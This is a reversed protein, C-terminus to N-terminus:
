GRGNGGKGKRRKEYTRKGTAFRDNWICSPRYTTQPLSTLKGAPVPACGRGSVYKPRMKAWFVLFVRRTAAFPTWKRNFSTHFISTCTFTKDIANCVQDYLIKITENVKTEPLIFSVSTNASTRYFASILRFCPRADHTRAATPRMSFNIRQTRLLNAPDDFTPKPPLLRLRLDNRRNAISLLKAVFFHM